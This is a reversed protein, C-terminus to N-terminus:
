LCLTSKERLRRSAKSLELIQNWLTQHAAVLLVHWMAIPICEKNPSVQASELELAAEKRRERSGFREALIM